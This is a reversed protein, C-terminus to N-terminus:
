IANPDHPMGAGSMRRCHRDYEKESEIWAAQRRDAEAHYERCMTTVDALVCPDIGARIRWGQLWAGAADIVVTPADISKGIPMIWASLEHCKVEVPIGDASTVKATAYTLTIQAGNPTTWKIERNAM